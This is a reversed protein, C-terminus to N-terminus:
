TIVGQSSKDAFLDLQGEIPEEIRVDFVIETIRNEMIDVYDSNLECLIAKRGTRVAM